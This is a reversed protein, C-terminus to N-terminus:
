RNARVDFVVMKDQDRIYLRGNAIVPHPWSPHNSRDPLTFRSVLKYEKPNAEVLCLRGDQYRCYLMGDAYLIATSGSGPSPRIPGWMVEGTNFNMCVLEGRNQGHGFYIYDGVLVMGGHHNGFKSSPYKWGSTATVGGDGSPALKLQMIGGKSTYGTSCVVDTGKVLATPINAVSGAVENNTFLLKGTKAEVGVFANQMWTLYVPVGGVVVKNISCYQAGGAGPITSRWIVEGTTKNLAVMGAKPGGPTCVVQEGDILVSESFGWTPVRGGFDQQFNRKWVLEATDGTQKICAITGAVGVGYIRDGEVTPSSRPGEGYGVQIRGDIRVSWIKKGTNEDLAWIMEDDGVYGMGFVRGKAITPAGYGGGLGDAKWAIPPGEAPWSKLLGKEQCIADVKPGRWRPWDDGSASGVLLGLNVSVLAILLGRLM